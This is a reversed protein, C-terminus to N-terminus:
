SVMCEHVFGFYSSYILKRLWLVEPVYRAAKTYNDAAPGLRKIDSYVDGAANHSM